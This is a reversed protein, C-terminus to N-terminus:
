YDRLHASRNRYYYVLRPAGIQLADGARVAVPRTHYGGLARLADDVIQSPTMRQVRDHVRGVEPRAAIARRLRDIRQEVAAVPVRLEHRPVRLLRYVDHTGAAAVLEDFLARATLHSTLFVTERRYAHVLEEGLERTYQADRQPDEAVQGRADCLYRSPDVLRGRRDRSRGDDDVENGFPDMPRGFRLVVSEELSLVRRLFQVIRGVQSFEDDEIIYRQRGQEALHDDVLTEAELVLHYNITVPVVYIPRLTHAFAQVSTGLLGLKLKSEVHNSRCRTGGPFFLSHYGHELLVTSYQKLVDKYLSFKLRRDVRYAGLNHMFFSILRNSFLNKGAGYTCPPLGSTELAFGLVISDMNSSHTPAVVLTGHEACTRVVDVAGQVQVRDALRSLGGLADAGGLPTFALGLATPLVGSAFRYVRPNFNGVVDLAYHRALRELERRKDAESMTGLRAALDHWRAYARQSKRDTYASLRSMECYAVENLVYEISRDGGAAAAALRDAVVRRVVEDVLADRDRNFHVLRNEM